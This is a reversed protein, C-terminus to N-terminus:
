PGPRIAVRRNGASFRQKSSYWRSVSLNRLVSFNGGTTIKFITGLNNTGGWYATGYFNGDNAQILDSESLGGDTSSVMNHLVTYSSGTSNVKFITGPGNVTGGQNTIGYFYGDTGEVLGGYCYGGDPVNNLSRLVTLAGASTVKFITGYGFAGGRSTTGYFLDDSALILHAHPNAGEALAMHHIVTFTGSPTIKFITGYTNTGGVSTVGYFNGDSGKALEGYPNAGDPGSNFHHLITIAGAATVKFITGYNFTGGAFTM